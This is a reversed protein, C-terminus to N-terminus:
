EGKSILKLKELLNEMEASFTMEDADDDFFRNCFSKIKEDKLRDNGCNYYKKIKQVKDVYSQWTARHEKTIKASSFLCIGNIELDYNMELDHTAPINKGFDYIKRSNEMINKVMNTASLIIEQKQRDTQTRGTTRAVHYAMISVSVAACNILSAVMLQVYEADTIGTYVIINLFPLKKIITRIHFLIDPMFVVLLLALLCILIKGINKFKKNGTKDTAEEKGM